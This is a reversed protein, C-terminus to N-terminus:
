ISDPDILADVTVQAGLNNSRTMNKYQVLKDGIKYAFHRAIKKRDGGLDSFKQKGDEDIQILPHGNKMGYTAVIAETESRCAVILFIPGKPKYYNKVKKIQEDLCNYVAQFLDVHGLTNAEQAKKIADSLNYFWDDGFKLCCARVEYGEKLDKLNFNYSSCSFTFVKEAIKLKIADDFDKVEQNTPLFPSLSGLVLICDLIQSCGEM